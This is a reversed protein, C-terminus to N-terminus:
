RKAFDSVHLRIASTVYEEETDEAGRENESRRVPVGTDGEDGVAFQQRGLLKASMMCRFSSM